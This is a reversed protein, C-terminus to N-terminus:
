NGTSSTVQNTETSHKKALLCLVYFCLVSLLNTVFKAIPWILSSMIKSSRGSDKLTKCIRRKCIEWLIFKTELKEQTNCHYWSFNIVNSRCNKKKKPPPPHPHPAGFLTSQPPLHTLPSNQSLWIYVFLIRTTTTFHRWRAFSGNLWKRKTTCLDGLNQVNIGVYM